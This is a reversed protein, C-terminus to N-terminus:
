VEVLAGDVVISATEDELDIPLHFLAQISEPVLFTQGSPIFYPVGVGGSASIVVTQAGDDWVLEIGDGAQIITKVKAYVRSATFYLNFAGEPLGDTTRLRDTTSGDGPVYLSGDANRLDVGVTAGVTAGQEVTVYANPKCWQAVRHTKSM